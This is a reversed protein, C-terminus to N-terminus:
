IPLFCVVTQLLPCDNKTPSLAAGSGWKLAARAQLALLDIGQAWFMQVTQSCLERLADAQAKTPASEGYACQCDLRLAAGQTGIEASVVARRVRVIGQETQLAYDSGQRLLMRIVESQPATLPLLKGQSYLVGADATEVGDATIELMPCWVTEERQYLHPSQASLRKLKDLLKDPFYETKESQLSFEEPTFNALTVYASTRGCQRELVAKEYAVTVDDAASSTLLLHDCLRYNAALPLAKEAMRLADELSVGGGCVFRIEGQANSADAAAEPAQYFLGVEVGQPSQHLFVARVMSKETTECRMFILCWIALLVGIQWPFISSKRM